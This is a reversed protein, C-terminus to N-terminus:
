FCFEKFQSCKSVQCTYSNIYTRVFFVKRYSNFSHFSEESVLIFHENRLNLPKRRNTHIYSENFSLKPKIIGTSNTVFVHRLM